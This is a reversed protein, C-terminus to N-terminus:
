VESLHRLFHCTEEYHDFFEEMCLVNSSKAFFRLWNKCTEQAYAKHFLHEDSVLFYHRLATRLFSERWDIKLTVLNLCIRSLWLYSKPASEEYERVFHILFGGSGIFDNYIGMLNDDSDIRSLSGLLSFSKEIISILQYQKGIEFCNKITARLTQRSNHELSAFFCFRKNLNLLSKLVVNIVNTSLRAGTKVQETLWVYWNQIFNWKNQLAQFSFHCFHILVFFFYILVAYLSSLFCCVGQLFRPTLSSVDRLLHFISVFEEFKTENDIREVLHVFCTCSSCDM